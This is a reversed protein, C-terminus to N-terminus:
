QKCPKLFKLSLLDREEKLTKKIEEKQDETVQTKIEIHVGNVSYDENYSVVTGDKLIMM